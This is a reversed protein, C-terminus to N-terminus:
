YNTRSSTIPAIIIIQLQVTGEKEHENKKEKRIEFVINLQQVANKSHFISFTFMEFNEEKEKLHHVLRTFSELM